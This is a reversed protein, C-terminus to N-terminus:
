AINREHITRSGSTRGVAVDAALIGLIRGEKDWFPTSVTICKDGSARSVYVESIYLNNTKMPETFWPRQSWNKGLAEADKPSEKGPRSINAIPQIGRADTLYLLELFDYKSIAARLAEEQREREMSTIADSAALESIVKQVVGQGMLRFVNNLSDLESVQELLRKMSAESNAMDEGTDRAIKDLHSITRTIQESATAQEVTASAISDIQRSNDDSLEVIEALMKGSRRAVDTAKQVLEAAGEMGQRTNAVGKQIADVQLGVDRTAEMTKEALKRVEDAVVAFGRGAEGARAAEIAANLALLNTQDAIDSIIEMVKGIGFAQKGLGNVVEGLQAMRENVAQIAAITEEVTVAGEQAEKKAKQAALAAEEASKSVQTQSANLEEMATAAETALRQAETAGQATDGSAQRLHNTAEQIGSIARGLTNSANILGQCRSQEAKEREEAIQQMARRAVQEQERLLEGQESNQKVLEEIKDFILDILIKFKEFGNPEAISGIDVGISAMRNDLLNLLVRLNRAQMVAAGILAGMAVLMATASLWILQQRLGAINKSLNSLDSSSLILGELSNLGTFAVAALVGCLLPVPLFIWILKKNM